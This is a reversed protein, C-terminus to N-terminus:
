RTLEEREQNLPRKELSATEAGDPAPPNGQEKNEYCGM